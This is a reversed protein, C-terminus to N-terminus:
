AYPILNCMKDLRAIDYGGSRAKDIFEGLITATSASTDHFLVIAGPRLAKEVKQLLDTPSKNVTDLSRINWGIPIYKGRRVARALNPNTVGYPPRFLRPKLGTATQLAKDMKALDAHM